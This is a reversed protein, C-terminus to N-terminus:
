GAAAQKQSDNETGVKGGQSPYATGRQAPVGPGGSHTAGPDPQVRPEVWETSGSGTIESLNMLSSCYERGLAETNARLAKLRWDRIIQQEKIDEESPKALHAMPECLGLAVSEQGEACAFIWVKGNAIKMPGKAVRIALHASVAGKITFKNSPDAKTRVWLEQM